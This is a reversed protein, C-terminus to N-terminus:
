TKNIVKTKKDKMAQEIAEYCFSYRECFQMPSLDKDVEYRDCLSVYIEGDNTFVLEIKPKIEKHHPNYNFIKVILGGKIDDLQQLNLVNDNTEAEKYDKKLTEIEKETRCKGQKKLYKVLKGKTRLTKLINLNIM